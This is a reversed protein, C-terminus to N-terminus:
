HHQETEGHGDQERGCLANGRLQRLLGTGQLAEDIEGGSEASGDDANHDPLDGFREADAVPKIQKDQKGGDYTQEGEQDSSRLHGILLSFIMRLMKM